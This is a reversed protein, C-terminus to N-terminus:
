QTVDAAQIQMHTRSGMFTVAQTVQTSHIPHGRETHTHTNAQNHKDKARAQCKNLWGSTASLSILWCFTADVRQRARQRGM